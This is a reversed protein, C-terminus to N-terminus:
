RSEKVVDALRDAAELPDRDGLLKWRQLMLPVNGERWLRDHFARLDFASGRGRACDALLEVIQARGIPPQERHRHRLITEAAVAEDTRHRGLARLRKVPYPLLVVRHLSFAFSRAGASTDQGFSGLRANLWDGFLAPARVAAETLNPLKRTSANGSTM